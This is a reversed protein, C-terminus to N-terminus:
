LPTAYKIEEDSLMKPDDETRVCTAGDKFRLSFRRSYSMGLDTKDSDLWVYLHGYMDKLKNVLDVSLNTGFLCVCPIHRSVKIASVIDEVVAVHETSKSAGCLKPTTQGENYTKPKRAPFYRGMWFVCVGNRLVPFILLEREDSWVINHRRIEDDTLDYSKLWKLADGNLRHSADIPLEAEHAISKDIGMQSANGYKRKAVDVAIGDPPIYLRCGFCWSSGDDYNALNDRSGCRPCNTHGLYRAM